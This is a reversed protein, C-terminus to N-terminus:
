KKILIIKQPAYHNQNGVITITYLGNEISEKSNVLSMAIKNIGTTAKLFLTKLIKGSTSHAINIQLDESQKANLQITIKESTPNPYVCTYHDELAITPEIYKVTVVANAVAIDNNNIATIRYLNTGIKRNLNDSFTLSKVTAIKTFDIGSIAHEISYEKINKSEDVQWNLKVSKKYQLATLNKIITPTAISKVYLSFRAAKNNNQTNFYYWSRGSLAM